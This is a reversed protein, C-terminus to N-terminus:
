AADLVSNLRELVVHPAAGEAVYAAMAYRLSMMTAAAALGHGTVDGVALVVDRDALSTALYWDGGIRVDPDASVCRASVSLGGVDCWEADPPQIMRQLALSLASQAELTRQYLVREPRVLMPSHM